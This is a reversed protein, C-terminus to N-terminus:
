NREWEHRNKPMTEAWTPTWLVATGDNLMAGIFVENMAATLVGVTNCLEEILHDAICDRVLEFREYRDGCKPCEHQETM